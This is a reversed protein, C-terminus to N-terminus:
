SFFDFERSNKNWLQKGLEVGFQDFANIEWLLSLTYVKHEYLAILQGLQFPALMDISLTTSPIGGRIVKFPALRAADKPEMGSQLLLDLAEQETQGQMLAHSQAHCHQLLHEHAHMFPHDSFQTAIFEVPIFHQGQYILQHFAHQSNTGVGGWIMQGTESAIPEGRANVSKGLSEMDLQQIHPVFHELRHHYPILAQAHSNFYRQYQLTLFAMLIPINESVSANQFHYDM